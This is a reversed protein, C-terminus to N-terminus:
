SLTATVQVDSGAPAPPVVNGKLPKGNVVLSVLGGPGERKVEM